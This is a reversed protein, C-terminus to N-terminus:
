HMRDLSMLTLKMTISFHNKPTERPTDTDVEVMGCKSGVANFPEVEM